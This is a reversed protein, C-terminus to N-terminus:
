PPPVLERLEEFWNLTVHIPVAQSTERGEVMLFRQGDPTVDYNRSGSNRPTRRYEGEFLVEPQGPVFTPETQVSVVM